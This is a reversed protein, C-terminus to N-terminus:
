LEMESYDDSDSSGCGSSDDSPSSERSPFSLTSEPPSPLSGSGRHAQSRRIADIVLDDSIGIWCKQWAMKGSHYEDIIQLHSLSWRQWLEHRILFLEQYRWYRVRNAIVAFKPFCGSSASTLYIDIAKLSDDLLFLRDVAQRTDELANQKLYIVTPDQWRAVFYDVIQRMLWGDLWRKITTVELRELEDLYKDEDYPPGKDWDRCWKVLKNKCRKFSDLWESSYQIKGKLWLGGALLDELDEPVSPM